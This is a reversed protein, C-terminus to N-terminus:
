GKAYGKTYAPPQKSKVPDGLVRATGFDLILAEKNPRLWINGPKLDLHIIGNDHFM